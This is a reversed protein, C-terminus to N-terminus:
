HRDTHTHSPHKRFWVPDIVDIQEWREPMMSIISLEERVTNVRKYHRLRLTLVYRKWCKKLKKQSIHHIDENWNSYASFVKAISYDPIETMCNDDLLLIRFQNSYKPFHRIKNSKVSFDFLSIPLTSPLTEIKNNNLTLICLTNPLKRPFQEIENSDLHLEKLCL